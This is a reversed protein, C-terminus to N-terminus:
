KPQSSLTTLTIVTQDTRTPLAQGLRRDVLELTLTYSQLPLDKPLRLTLLQLGYVGPQWDAPNSGLGDAEAWTRGEADRLRTLFTYDTGPPLGRLAHWALLLQFKGGAQATGLIEYGSLRLADNITINLPQKLSIATLDLDNPLRYLQYALGSQAPDHELFRLWPAAPPASEAFLYRPSLGSEPPPFALSQQGDFWIAFPPQGAWHLTYRYPDLDRYYDSSIATLEHTYNHRVYRAIEAIDAGYIHNAEPANRWHIFYDTSSGIVLILLPVTLLAASLSQKLRAPTLGLRRSERPSGTSVSQPLNLRGSHQRYPLRTAPEIQTLGWDLGIAWILYIMPLAGIVRLFHPSDDTIFDPLLMWFLWALILLAQQFHITAQATETPRFSRNGRILRVGLLGLGVYFFLGNLWDFLPRGDLNYRDTTDGMLTVMGLTYLTNTLLPEFDGGLAHPLTTVQNARLSFSAQNELYHRALPAFLAAWMVFHLLLGIAPATLNRQTRYHSSLLGLAITLLLFPIFRSSLYTYMAIGAMLGSVTGYLWSKWNTHSFTLWLFYLALILLPPLAIARLTLRSVFIPWFSGAVGFMAILAIRRNGLRCALPYILAITLQGCIVNVLRLQIPGIGFLWFALAELYIILPEIGKNIEFFIPRAGDIVQIAALGNAAEDHSLGPPLAPLDIIRLAFGALLIITPIFLHNRRM